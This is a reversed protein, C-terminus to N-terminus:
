MRATRSPNMVAVPIANCTPLVVATQSMRTCSSSPLRTAALRRVSTMRCGSSRRTPTHDVLGPLRLATKKTLRLPKKVIDPGPMVQAYRRFANRSLSQARNSVGTRGKSSKAGTGLPKPRPSPGPGGLSRVPVRPAFARLSFPASGGSRSPSRLPALRLPGPRPGAPLARASGITVPRKPGGKSRTRPASYIVSAYPSPALPELPEVPGSLRKRMMGRGNHLRGEM